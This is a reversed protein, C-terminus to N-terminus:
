PSHSAFHGGCWSLGIGGHRAHRSRSLGLEGIETEPKLWKDHRHPRLDLEM